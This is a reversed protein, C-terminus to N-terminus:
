VSTHVNQIEKPSSAPQEPAEPVHAHEVDRREPHEDADPRPVAERVRGEVAQLLVSELKEALLVRDFQTEAVQRARRAMAAREQPHDRLWLIERALSVGDAPQAFRGIKEQETLRGTWGDANVIVPRGAALADFLKNPSNIALVSTVLAVDTAQLLPAVESRPMAGTFVVNRLQREAVTRRLLDETAGEGVLLIVVDEQGQQQLETAADLATMLGNNAGMSGAHTAVFREGLNFRAVVEPSPDGPRFLDLDSCNPIFTIKEAAGGAARVGDGMDPSLVVVHQSYRYIFREFGRLLLILLPNRLMGLQIPMEPWLDRVEFVLPIRLVASALIGPVGVTLPTSSAFM